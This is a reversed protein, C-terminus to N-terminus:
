DDFAVLSWFIWSATCIVLTVYASAFAGLTAALYIPVGLRYRSTVLGLVKQSEGRRLLDRNGLISSWVAAFALAILIFTGGYVGAAARAGPKNFYESFLATSFPVATTLLLLLGNAFLLRTSTKRILRFVGHHNVWMILVTVFSTIFAMYSPWQRLLSHLLLRAGQNSSSPPVKLDLALLTIAVAFVGDSFAEIRGTEKEEKEKDRNLRADNM